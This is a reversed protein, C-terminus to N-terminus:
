EILNPYDYSCIKSKRSVREPGVATDVVGDPILIYSDICGSILFFNLLDSILQLQDFKSLHFYKNGAAQRGTNAAITAAANTLDFADSIFYIISVLKM